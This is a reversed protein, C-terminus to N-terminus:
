MVMGGDITFVQGTIYSAAPNIALFEVLGAVEEPKGYRGLPITELIKKEVEEGLKATMDSAIFGPAIANVKCGAKGLSLAMAKGIGRSAGTVIVVPSEVSQAGETSVKEVTAVQARVGAISSGSRCRLSPLNRLQSWRAGGLVPPPKRSAPAEGRTVPNTAPAKLGDASSPPHLLPPLRLKFPFFVTKEELKAVRKDHKMKPMDDPKDKEVIVQIPDDELDPMRDDVEKITKKGSKHKAATAKLEKEPWISKQPHCMDRM